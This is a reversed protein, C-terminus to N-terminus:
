KKKAAKGGANVLEKFEAGPRFRPAWSEEVKIPAGTSPNRATRAPKHVMEFAGFGTISVKDGRAVANQITELVANVAETATKKDGVRDAIAEVLERKNM